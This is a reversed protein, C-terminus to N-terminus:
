NPMGDPWFWARITYTLSAGNTNSSNITLVNGHADYTYTLTGEQTAETLLRSGVDGLNRSFYPVRRSIM